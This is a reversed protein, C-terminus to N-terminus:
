VRGCVCDVAVELSDELTLQEGCVCRLTAVVFEIKVIQPEVVAPFSFALAADIEADTLGLQRYGPRAREGSHRFDCRLDAIAIVLGDFRYRGGRYAPDFVIARAPM